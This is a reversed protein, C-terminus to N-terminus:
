RSKDSVLEYVNKVKKFDHEYKESLKAYLHYSLLVAFQHFLNQQKVKM